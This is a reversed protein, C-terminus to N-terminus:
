GNLRFADEDANLAKFHAHGYKSTRSLLHQNSVKLKLVVNESHTRILSVLFSSARFGSSQKTVSKFLFHTAKSQYPRVAVETQKAHKLTLISSCNPEGSGLGTLLAFSLLWRIMTKNSIAPWTKM